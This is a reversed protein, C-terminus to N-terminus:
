KNAQPKRSKNAPPTVFDLKVDVPAPQSSRKGCVCKTLREYEERDVVAGEPWKLWRARTDTEPVVCCGAETLCLHQDVKVTNDDSM